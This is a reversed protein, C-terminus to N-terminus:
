QALQYVFRETTDEAYLDGNADYFRIAKRKFYQIRNSGYTVRSNVISNNPDYPNLDTRETFLFVRLTEDSGFAGWTTSVGNKVGMSLINSGDNFIRTLTTYSVVEGEHNLETPAQQSQYGILYEGWWVQLQMGGQGFSPLTGHNIEFVTHTDFSADTPGFVTVIQPIDLNPDPNNVLFEWDEEVKHIPPANAVLEEFTPTADQASLSSTWAAFMTAAVFALSTTIRM